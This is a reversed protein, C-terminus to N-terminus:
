SSGARSPSVPETSQNAAPQKEPYFVSVATPTKLSKSKTIAMEIDKLFEKEGYLQDKKLTINEPAQDELALPGPNGMQRFALVKESVVLKATIPLYSDTGAVRKLFIAARGEPISKPPSQLVFNGTSDLTFQGNDSNRQRRFIADYEVNIIENQRIEGKFVKLVKCRVSTKEETWQPHKIESRQIALEECYVVADSLLILSDMRYYPIWAAAVPSAVVLSLFTIWM